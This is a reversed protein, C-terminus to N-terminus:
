RTLELQELQKQTHRRRLLAVTAILVLVAIATFIGVIILIGNNKSKKTLEDSHSPLVFKTHYVSAVLSNFCVM